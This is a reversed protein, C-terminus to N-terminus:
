GAISVLVMDVIDQDVWEVVTCVPTGPKVAIGCKM